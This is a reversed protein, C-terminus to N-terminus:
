MQGVAKRRAASSQGREVEVTEFLWCNVATTKMGDQAALVDLGAACGEVMLSGEGEMGTVSCHVWVRRVNRLWGQEQDDTNVSWGLSVQPMDMLGASNGLWDLAVARETDELAIHGGPINDAVTANVVVM